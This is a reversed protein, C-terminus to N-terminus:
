SKEVLILLANRSKDSLAIPIWKDIFNIQPNTIIRDFFLPDEYKSIQSPLFSSFRSGKHMHDKLCKELFVLMPDAKMESKTKEEEQIENLRYKQVAMEYQKTTINGKERLKQFFRPLNNLHHRGINQYFNDIDSDTFHAKMKTMLDELSQLFEKAKMKAQRSSEPFLFQSMEIDSEEESFDNFFISDFTDLKPLATEWKEQIVIIKQYKQAWKKAQEAKESDPEIITHVLPQYSQIREAAYGQEFGVQLVSGSPNLSDILAETYLKKWETLIQEEVEYAAM